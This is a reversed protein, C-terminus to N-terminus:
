SWGGYWRPSQGKIPRHSLENMPNRPIATIRTNTDDDDSWSMVTRELIYIHSNSYAIFSVDLDGCCNYACDNYELHTIETDNTEKMVSEISNELDPISKCLEKIKEIHSM